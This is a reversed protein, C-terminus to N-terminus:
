VGPVGTKEKGVKLGYDELLGRWLELKEQLKEGSDAVLVIDDAFLMSWPAEKTVEEVLVDVLLNFLYPSLASGRCCQQGGQAVARKAENNAEKLMVKREETLEKDYAKKMEKKREIKENCNPSWWWSEKGNKPKKGLVEEAMGKIVESNMKWWQDVDEKNDIRELVKRKYEQRVAEDRLKWWRIRPEGRVVGSRRTRVALKAVVPSHQAGVREGQRVKCDEVEETCSFTSKVREPAGERGGHVRRVGGNDQGIHGNLDGGVVCREEQPVERQVKDM